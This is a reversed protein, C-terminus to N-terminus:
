FFFFKYLFSYKYGHSGGLDIGGENWWTCLCYKGKKGGKLLLILSKGAPILVWHIQIHKRRQKSQSIKSKAVSAAGSPLARGVAGAAASKGKSLWEELECLGFSGFAKGTSNAGRDRGGAGGPYHCNRLVAWPIINLLFVVCLCVYAAHSGTM